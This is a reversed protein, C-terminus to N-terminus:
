FSFVGAFAKKFTLSQEVTGCGFIKLDLNWVVDLTFFFISFCM